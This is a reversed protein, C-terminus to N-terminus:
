TSAAAASCSVHDALACAMRQGGGLVAADVLRLRSGWGGPRYRSVRCAGVARASTIAMVFHDITPKVSSSISESVASADAKGGSEGFLGLQGVHWTARGREDRTY